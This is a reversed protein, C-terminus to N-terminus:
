LYKTNIWKWYFDIVFFCSILSEFCRNSLVTHLPSFEKAVNLFMTILSESFSTCIRVVGGGGGVCVCLCVCVCVNQHSFLSSMVTLLERKQKKRGCSSYFGRFYHSIYSFSHLKQMTNVNSVSVELHAVTYGNNLM